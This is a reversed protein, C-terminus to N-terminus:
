QEQVTVLATPYLEVLLKKAKECHEPRGAIKFTGKVWNVKVIEVFVGLNALKDEIRDADSFIESPVPALGNKKQGADGQQEGFHGRVENFRQPIFGDDPKM